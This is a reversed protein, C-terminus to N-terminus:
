RINSNKNNVGSKDKDAEIEKFLFHDLYDKIRELNKFFFSTSPADKNDDRKEEAVKKATYIDVSPRLGSIAMDLASMVAIPKIGSNSFFPISSAIGATVAMAFTYSSEAIQAERPLMQNKSYCAGLKALTTFATVISSNALENEKNMTMILAVSAVAAAVNLFINVNSCNIPGKQNEQQQAEDDSNKKNKIHEQIKLDIAAFLSSSPLGVISFVAIALNTMETIEPSPNLIQAAVAASQGITTAPLICYGLASRCHELIQIPEFCSSSNQLLNVKESEIDSSNETPSNENNKINNNRSKCSELSSSIVEYANTLMAACFLFTAIVDKENNGDFKKRREDLFFIPAIYTAVSILTRAIQWYQNKSNQESTNELEKYESSNM